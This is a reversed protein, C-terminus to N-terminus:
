ENAAAEHEQARYNRNPDYVDGLEMPMVLPPQGGQQQLRKGYIKSLLEVLEKRDADDLAVEMHRMAVVPVYTGQDMNENRKMTSMLGVVAQLKGATADSLWLDLQATIGDVAPASGAFNLAPGGTGRAV